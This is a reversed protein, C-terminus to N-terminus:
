LEDYLKLFLEKVVPVGGMLIESRFIKVKKAKETIIEMNEPFCCAM